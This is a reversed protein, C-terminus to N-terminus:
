SLSHSYLFRAYWTCYLNFSYFCSIFCVHLPFRPFLRGSASIFLLSVSIFRSFPFSSFLGVFVVLFHIKVPASASSFHFSISPLLFSDCPSYSASRCRIRLPFPACMPRVDLPFGPSIPCFHSSFAGAIFRVHPLFSRSQVLFRAPLQVSTCRNMSCTQKM